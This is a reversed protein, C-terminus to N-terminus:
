ILQAQVELSMFRGFHQLLDGRGQLLTKIEPILVSVMKEDGDMKRAMQAVSANPSALPPLSLPSPFPFPSFPLRRSRPLL